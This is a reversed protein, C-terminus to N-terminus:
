PKESSLDLLWKGETFAPSRTVIKFKKLFVQTLQYYKKTASSEYFIIV